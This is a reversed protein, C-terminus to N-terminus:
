QSQSFIKIAEKAAEKEANKKSHGRGTGYVENGVLVDVIFVKEHEPGSEDVVRYEIKLKNDKSQVLEQLKSKSDIDNIFSDVDYLVYKHIFNKAVEIGGDLYMAGIIAEFADSTVSARMRGGLGEEGKGLLIYDGLNIMKASKALATECVLSARLKSMNGELMNPYNTFLYDSSVMELVADGLFELRENCKIKNIKRENVYSSHSLAETALGKNKFVYEIKEELKSLGNSDNM